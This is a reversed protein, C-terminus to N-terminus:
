PTVLKDRLDVFRFPPTNASFYHFSGFDRSWILDRTLMSLGMNRIPRDPIPFVASPERAQSSNAPKPNPGATAPLACRDNRVTGQGVAPSRHMAATPPASGLGGCLGLFPRDPACTILRCTTPRLQRHRRRLQVVPIACTASMRVCCPTQAGVKTLRSFHCGVRLPCENTPGKSGLATV